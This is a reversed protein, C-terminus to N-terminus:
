FGNGGRIESIVTRLLIKFDLWLSFTRIYELDLAVRIAAPEPEITPGRFGRCQALGTIGPRMKHRSPYDDVLEEYLMGAAKMGPVHPRPGILSMDGRLVNFLQPLEDLNARRLILGLPTIRPDDNTTQAVGSPDGRDSFMTRFKLIEFTQNDFGTRDQRFFVPGPSGLKILISVAILIPSLLILGLIAGVIDVLRKLFLAAPNFQSLDFDFDVGSIEQAGDHSISGLRVDANSSRDAAITRLYAIRAANARARMEIRIPDPSSQDESIGTNAADRRRNDRSTTLKYPRGTVDPDTDALQMGGGFFSKLPELRKTLFVWAVFTGLIERDNGLKKGRDPAFNLM